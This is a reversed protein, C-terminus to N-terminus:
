TIALERASQPRTIFLFPIQKGVEMRKGIKRQKRAYKLARREDSLLNLERAVSPHLFLTNPRAPAQVIRNFADRIAEELEVEERYDQIVTENIGSGSIVRVDEPISYEAQMTEWNGPPVRIVGDDDAFFRELGGTENRLLVCPRQPQPTDEYNPV